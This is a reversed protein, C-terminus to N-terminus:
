IFGEIRYLNIYTNSIYKLVNVKDMKNFKKFYKIADLRSVNLKTFFYNQKVIKKMEKSIQNVIEKNIKAGVVTCYVGHDMSHEAIIDVDKGLVNQIALVMIFRASRAYITNGTDSTRDFFDINCKKSLTDSLDVLNNDVKAALIEYNFYEKFCDAIEKFTTGELFEMSKVDRFTVKFKKTM